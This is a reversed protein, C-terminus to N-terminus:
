AGEDVAAGDGGRQLRGLGVGAVGREVAVELVYQFDDGRVTRMVIEVQDARGPLEADLLVRRLLASRALRVDHVRELDGLHEGLQLHIGGGDGGAEQVVRHFVGVYGGVLDALAETLLDRVDNVADGLEVFDLEGIAFLVLCFVNALHQQGHDGVHAHNEDLKCM